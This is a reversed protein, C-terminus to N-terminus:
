PPPLWADFPQGPAGAGLAICRERAEDPVLAAAAADVFLRRAQSDALMAAFDRATVSPALPAVVAGARLAGLFLAAQTMTPMGALAIAQGPLMGDRQLGAAIRDMLADLEGWSLSTDDQLLAPQAPRARAHERVVDAISRFGTTSSQM